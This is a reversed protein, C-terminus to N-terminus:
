LNNIKMIDFESSPSWGKDIKDMILGKNYGGFSQIWHYVTFTCVFLISHKISKGIQGNFLPVWAGFLFYWFNFGTKFTKVLGNKELTIM